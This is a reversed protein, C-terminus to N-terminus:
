RSGGLGLFFFVIFVVSAWVGGCPSCGMRRALGAVWPVLVAAFGFRDFRLVDISLAVSSCSWACILAASRVARCAEGRAAPFGVFFFDRDEDGAAV